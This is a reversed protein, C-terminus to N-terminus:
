GGVSFRYETTTEYVEGKKLVCSPFNAHHPTDPFHQTELCFGQRACYPVGAKGPKRSDISNGTYFQVGPQDTWTEMQRGTDPDTVVCAKRLLGDWGNLVFNHDYGNGYQMQTDSAQMALGERIVRPTRLDLPTGDVPMLRGTPICAASAVETIADADIMISHGGISTSQPGSLNFYVHNTLNVITDQDARAEYHIRLAHDDSFSYTVVVDMAGPFGEDGAPSHITLVLADGETQAKWLYKDFGRNGGHLTNEGNNKALTYTKGNLDFSAGGIRNAYRGILMGMFGGESQIADLAEYGVVVDGLTGDRDPVVIAMLCGGLTSIDVYAGSANTLRCCFVEEGNALFGMSRRDIM